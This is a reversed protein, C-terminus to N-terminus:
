SGGEGLINLVQEARQRIGPPAGAMTRLAKFQERADDLRGDRHAVIAKLEHASFRWPNNGELLPALRADIDAASGDNILQSAALYRVFDTLAPGGEGSAVVADYIDIAGQRDGAEIRVGAERLRALVAYGTGSEEALARFSETAESTKGEAAQLAALIYRNSDEIRQAEQYERWAVRGATGIVIALCAGVVYGGYKKWLANAKEKRVEEDVEQFIDSM